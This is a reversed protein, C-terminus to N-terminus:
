FHPFFPKMSNKKETIEIFVELEWTIEGNSRIIGAYHKKKNNNM